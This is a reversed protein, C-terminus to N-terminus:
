SARRSPTATAVPACRRDEDQLQQRLSIAMDDDTLAFHHPTTECTVPLRQQRAYEVMGVANRTSIHAVHYRAGTLQALLLDRAVMVIKPARGTHRAVGAARVKRARM